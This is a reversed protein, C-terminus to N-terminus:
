SIPVETRLHTLGDFVLINAVNEIEPVPVNEVRPAGPVIRADCIHSRLGANLEDGLVAAVYTKEPYRAAVALADDVTV